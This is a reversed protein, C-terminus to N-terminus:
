RNLRNLLNQCNRPLERLQSTGNDIKAQETRCFELMQQERATLSPQVPTTTGAFRSESQALQVQQQAQLQAQARRLEEQLRRNEEAQERMQRIQIDNQADLIEKDRYYQDRQAQNDLSYQTKNDAKVTSSVTHQPQGNSGSSTSVSTTTQVNQGYQRLIEAREHNNRATSETKRTTTRENREHEIVQVGDQVGGMLINWLLGTGVEKAMEKAEDMNKPTDNNQAMAQPAAFVSLSVVAVGMVAAKRLGTGMNNVKDALKKLGM